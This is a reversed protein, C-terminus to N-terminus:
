LTTPRWHWMSSCADTSRAITQAFWGDHHRRHGHGCAKANQNLTHIKELAGGVDDFAALFGDGTHKFIEGGADHVAVAALTQTDGSQPTATTRDYVKRVGKAAAIDAVSGPEIDAIVAVLGIVGRVRGGARQIRTRLAAVLDTHRAREEFLFMVKAKERLAGFKTGEGVGKGTQAQAIGPVLSAGLMVAMLWRMTYAVQWLDQFRKPSCCCWVGQRRPGVEM